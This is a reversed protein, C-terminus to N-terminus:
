QTLSKLSNYAPKISGDFRRLGFHNERDGESTGLDQYSYWFLPGVFSYTRAERVVEELLEAQYGETVHDPVRWRNFDNDDAESGPGGTPAGYETLWIDKAGDGNYKMIGRLSWETEEMQSWANQDNYDTPLVPYTYPHFGLADFHDKAGHVYMGELFERATMNAGRTAVPALGGSVVVADSDVAKIADHAAKLLDTYREPDAHPAWFLGMNPENWIEWAHVGMPAYRSAAVSVFRAFEDPNRPGCKDTYTCDSPRAWKPTYTLIPLVRIGREHAEEVIRDYADWHYTDRDRWQISSWSLDARIWGAGLRVVDDLRKELEARNLDSLTEGMAIGYRYDLTDNEPEQVVPPSAIADDPEDEPVTTEDPPVIPAVADKVQVPEEPVPSTSTTQMTRDATAPEVDETPAAITVPSEHGTKYTLQAESPVPSRSKLYAEYWALAGFVVLIFTVFFGVTAWIRLRTSYKQRQVPVGIREEVPDSHIEVHQPEGPRVNRLDLENETQM